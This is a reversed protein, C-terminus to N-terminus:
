QAVKKNAITFQEITEVVICHHSPNWVYGFAVIGYYADQM